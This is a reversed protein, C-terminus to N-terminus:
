WAAALRAAALEVALRCGEGMAAVVDGGGALLPDGAAAAVAAGDRGTWPLTTHRDLHIVEAQGTLRDPIDAWIRCDAFRDPIFIVRRGSM